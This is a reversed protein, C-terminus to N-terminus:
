AGYHLVGVIEVLMFRATCPDWANEGGDFTRRVTASPIGFRAKRALPRAGYGGMAAGFLRLHNDAYTCEVSVIM